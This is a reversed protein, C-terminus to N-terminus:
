KMRSHVSPMALNTLKLRRVATRIMGTLSTNMPAAANVTLEDLATAPLTDIMSCFILGGSPPEFDVELSRFRDAARLRLTLGVGRFVVNAPAAPLARCVELLSSLPVGRFSGDFELSRLRSLLPLNWVWGAQDFNARAARLTLRSLRPLSTAAGIRETLESPWATLDGPGALGVAEIPLARPADFLVPVASLAAMTVEKLSRMHPSALETPAAPSFLVEVKELTALDPVEVHLGELILTAETLFGRDWREHGPMVMPALGRLFAVRHRELLKSMRRESRQTRRPQLSLSLFEGRPDGAEQLADALVLRPGDDHPAAFVAQYLADIVPSADASM